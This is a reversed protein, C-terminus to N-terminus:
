TTTDKPTMGRAIQRARFATSDGHTAASQYQWARDRWHPVIPAARVAIERRLAAVVNLRATV